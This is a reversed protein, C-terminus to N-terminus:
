VANACVEVDASLTQMNTGLAAPDYFMEVDNEPDLNHERCMKVTADGLDKVMGNEVHTEAFVFANRGQVEFLYSVAHHVGPDVGGKVEYPSNENRTGDVGHIDRDFQEFVADGALLFAEAPKAPNEQMMRRPSMTREMAEYWAQDRKPHAHWPLFIPQYEGELLPEPDKLTLQPEAAKWMRYATGHYGKATFIVFLKGGGSLTPPVATMVGEANEIKALEQVIVLTATYGTGADETAPLSIIRSDMDPFELRDARDSGKRLKLEPPLRSHMFKVRALEEKSEELGKSIILVTQGKNATCLWLGYADACWSIGLQRAKLVIVRQQEDFTRIVPRQTEWLRFRQPLGGEAPRLWCHQDIFIEPDLLAAEVENRTLAM